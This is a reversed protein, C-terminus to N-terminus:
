LSQNFVVLDAELVYDCLVLSCLTEVKSCVVVEGTLLKIGLSELILKSTFKRLQVFTASM